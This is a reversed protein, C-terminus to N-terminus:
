INITLENIKNDVIDNASKTYKARIECKLDESLSQFTKRVGYHYKVISSQKFLEARYLASRKNSIIYARLTCIDLITFRTCYQRIKLSSLNSDMDKLLNSIITKNLQLFDDVKRVRALQKNIVYKKRNSINKEINDQAYKKSYLRDMEKKGLDLHRKTKKEKTCEKCLISRVLGTSKNNPAKYVYVSHLTIGHIKCEKNIEGQKM